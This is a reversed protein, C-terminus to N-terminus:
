VLEQFLEGLLFPHPTVTDIEQAMAAVLVHEHVGEVDQLHPLTLAPPQDAHLQTAYLPPRGPTKGEGGWFKQIKISYMLYPMHGFVSTYM